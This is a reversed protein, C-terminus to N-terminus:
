FQKKFNWSLDYRIHSWMKWHFPNMYNPCHIRSGIFIIVIRAFSLFNWLLRYFKFATSRSLFWWILMLGFFYLHFTTAMGRVIPLYCRIDISYQQCFRNVVNWHFAEYKKTRCRHMTFRGTSGWHYALHCKAWITAISIWTHWHHQQWM